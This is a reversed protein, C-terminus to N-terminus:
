IVGLLRLVYWAVAAVLGVMVGIAALWFAVLLLWVIGTIVWLAAGGILDIVVLMVAGIGVIFDRALRM